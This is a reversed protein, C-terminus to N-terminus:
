DKGRMKEMLTNLLVAEAEDLGFIDIQLQDMVRSADALQRLGEDSLSILTERKDEESITRKVLNKLLLRDVIRPVNSNKEIMRSGIDKICIQEPHKGKLIRLVNFQEITLDMEKLSGSAHTKFWYSTYLLNIVAKHRADAFNESRIAEELKMTDKCKTNVPLVYRIM